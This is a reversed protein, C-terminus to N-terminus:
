AADGPRAPKSRDEIEWAHDLVHWASRRVFFRAKWRKGGRPGTRAIEGRASAALGELMAERTPELGHPSTVELKYKWGLASLYGGDAELVHKVIGLLPRGGGRPGKSLTRGRAGDVADDFARWCALFIASLRRLEGADVDRDDARPPAGPAGFDTTANGRLREVIDFSGVDTPAKFGLRSRAVARAYRPGSELLAQVASTDDKGGRCWGPWEIAGAFTRKEGRELYIPIARSGAL